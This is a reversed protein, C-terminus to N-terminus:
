RVVRYYRGDLTILGLRELTKLRTQYSAKMRNIPLCSRGNKAKRLDRLDSLTAKDIPLLSDLIRQAQRDEKNM